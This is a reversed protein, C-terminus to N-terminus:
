QLARCAEATCRVLVAAQNECVFQFDEQEGTAGILQAAGPSSCSDTAVAEAQSSWRAIKAATSISCKQRIAASELAEYEGKLRSYEAAQPGDRRRSLVPDAM